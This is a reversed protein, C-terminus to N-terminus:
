EHSSSNDNDSFFINIVKTVTPNVILTRRLLVILILMVLLGLSVIGFGKTADAMGSLYFALTLLAFISFMGGLGALVLGTILGSAANASKEAASLKIGEIKRDVLANVYGFSEGLQELLQDKSLM